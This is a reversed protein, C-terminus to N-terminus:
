TDRDAKTPSAAAPSDSAGDPRVSDAAETRVHAPLEATFTAGRGLESEVGIRGKMLQVFKYSIALGLGTGGYKRAISTDAQAFEKFLNDRQKAAIGIGTDTVQFRIWDQGNELKRDVDLGITGHDTFKCANSLLNFLIQRVKTVDAHMGGLSNALHAHITNGNKAAAPQLTTTMEDILSAVDFTELHLGM